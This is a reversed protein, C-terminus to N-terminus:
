GAPKPDPEVAGKERARDEALRTLAGRVVDLDRLHVDHQALAIEIGEERFAKLIRFRLDSRAGGVATVDGVVAILLFELGNPGFNDLGVWPPPHQLILPCESAVKLLVDRVQEPDSQYSVNVTVLARGLSNRHTWNTVTATILESNPVILSARDFTEIETSRVSIRRVFGDQNNVTVRDGVKIPREVLLILGSVFNNVISQLGFGIGVSLAGAVIAFNTIDLGGYSVAVLVALIFGIYGVATRISNAIGQDIRQSRLVGTDLWKQALRTAFVLALFLGVAFLIRALSIRVEGIEFGFVAARLWSLAEQTTYGWTVLLLPLAVLALASNLVVSAVRRLAAAQHPDLGFSDELLTKLPGDLLSRIALHIVLVVAITGGTVVVHTAILRALGVYGLLAAVLLLTAGALAPLKILYPRLPSVPVHPAAPEAATGASTQLGPAPPQGEATPAAADGMKFDFPTNVLKLLLLAIAISVFVTEMANVSLPLYLRRIVDQLILDISFVFAIGSVIRNLRRAAPTAIDVLRWDPRQPQLVAQTLARVAAFVALVVFAQQAIVGVDLALLGLTDLGAALLGITGLGPLALLPAVWGVTAAQEVFGPPAIRPANLQYGVFRRVLTAVAIYFFFSGVLLASVAFWQQSAAALWGSAADAIQRWAGPSDYALKDWTSAKLPSPSRNLIEQTFLDQRLKQVDTQLQRARVQVLEGTKRAGDIEGLMAGLRAREAIVQETEPAADVEAAPKLKEFLQRVTDTKTKLTALRDQSTQVLDVLEARLRALEGDNEKNREISGELTELLGKLEMMPQRLEELSQLEAPTLVPAPAPEAAVIPPSPAEEKPPAEAPAKPMGPLQLPSPLTQALARNEALSVALGSFLVAVGLVALASRLLLRDRYM